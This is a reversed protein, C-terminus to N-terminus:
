AGAKMGRRPTAPDMSYAAQNTRTVPINKLVSQQTKEYLPKQWAGQRFQAQYVFAGSADKQPDLGALVGPNTAASAVEGVSKWQVNGAGDTFAQAVSANMLHGVRDANSAAQYLEMGADPTPQHQGFYEHAAGAIGHEAAFVTTDRAQAFTGAPGERASDAVGGAAMHGLTSLPQYAFSAATQVPRAVAQAGRGLAKGVSTNAAWSTAQGVPTRGLAAGTAAMKAGIALGPTSAKFREGLSTRGAWSTVQAQAKAERGQMAMGAAQGLPTSRVATSLGKGGLYGLAMGALLHGSGASHHGTLNGLLQPARAALTFTTGALFLDKFQQLVSPHASAGHLFLFGIWLIVAMALQNFVAGMAESWAWKFPTKNGGIGLAAMVPLLGAYLVLDVQRMLWIGVVWILLAAIVLGSVPWLLDVFVAAAAGTIGTAMNHNLAINVVQQMNSVLAQTGANSIGLLLNLFGWGGVLVAMWVAIGEGIEAWSKSGSWALALRSFVGMLVMTLAIGASVAGATEWVHLAAAGVATTPDLTFPAFVTHKLLPLVLYQVAAKLVLNVAYGIIKLFTRVVLGGINGLGGILWSM